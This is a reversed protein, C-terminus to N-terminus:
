IPKLADLLKTIWGRTAASKLAGSNTVVVQKDAIQTSLVTNDATIDEKRCTGTLTIQSSEEDHVITARGELVLLGNPKVDLIRATLRTTLRDERSSDGESKYKQNFTYDVNPRGRRFGAAGLGGDIPKFFADLESKIDFKRKTELDADAEWQRQERVIITVLDGPRFTKSPMPTMATWGYKEYVLNRPRPPAERPLKEEPKNSDVQRQRAGLSSTQAWASSPSAEAVILFWGAVVMGTSVTRLGPERVNRM